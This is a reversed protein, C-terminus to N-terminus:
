DDLWNKFAFWVVYIFVAVALVCILVVIWLCQIGVLSVVFQLFDLLVIYLEKIM